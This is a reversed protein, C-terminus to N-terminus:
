IREVQILDNVKDYTFKMDDGEKLKAARVIDKPISLYDSNGNKRIKSEDVILHSGKNLEKIVGELDGDARKILKEITSKTAELNKINLKKSTDM